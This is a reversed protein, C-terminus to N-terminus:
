FKTRLHRSLRECAVEMLAPDTAPTLPYQMVGRARYARPMGSMRPVMHLHYHPCSEGLSFTYIRECGTVQRIAKMAARLVEGHSSAEADNADSLDLWHRRAELVLYGLINTEHSHRLIWNADKYVVGTPSDVRACIACGRAPSQDCQSNTEPKVLTSQAPM